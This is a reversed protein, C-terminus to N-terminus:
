KWNGRVWYYGGGNREWHGAAWTRGRKPRAWYGNRYTYKGRTAYWDGDIWIYDPAPQAVRVVVPAVPQETVVIRRSSSCSIFMIFLLLSAFQLLKM